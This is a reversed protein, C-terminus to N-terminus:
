DQTSNPGFVSDFNYLKPMKGNVNLTFEDPYEMIIQNSDKVALEQKILPRIRAYVRIKGKMDELQNHLKKRIIQEEKYKGEMIAYDEKMDNVEKKMKDNEEALQAANESAKGLAAIEKIM